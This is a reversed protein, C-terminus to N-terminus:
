VRINKLWEDSVDHAKGNEGPDEDSPRVNAVDDIVLVVVPEEVVLLNAPLINNEGPDTSSDQGVNTLQEEERCCQRRVMVPKM